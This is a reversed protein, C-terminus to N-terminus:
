DEESADTRKRRRWWALALVFLAVFTIAISINFRKMWDILRDWRSGFFYGVLPVVSVWLSAGLFNIVAKETM